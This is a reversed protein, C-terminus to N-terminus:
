LSEVFRALGPRRIRKNREATLIAQLKQLSHDFDKNVIVYDYEDWHSIESAAKTMRRLVIDESDQARKKLRSELETMSPPLIFISVLDQPCTKRLRQTGQWDIDFIVDQGSTLQQEVFSKPTGYHSDFVKAHELFENAAAKDLFEADSMFFYDIGDSEGPRMARTTASVSLTLHEDAELLARSLSTKGAGSPSSLVFMMGRRQNFASDDFEFM